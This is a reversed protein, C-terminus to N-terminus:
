NNYDSATKKNKYLFSLVRDIERKKEERMEKRMEKKYSYYSSSGKVPRSRYENTLYTLFSFVAVFLVLASVILKVALAIYKELKEM